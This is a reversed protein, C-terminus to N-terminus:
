GITRGTGPCFRWGSAGSRRLPWKTAPRATLRTWGCKRWARCFSTFVRVASFASIPGHWGTMSRGDSIGVDAARRRRRRRVVRVAFGVRRRPRVLFVSVHAPHGGRGGGGQSGAGGAPAPRSRGGAAACRVVRCQGRRNRPHSGKEQVSRGPRRAAGAGGAGGEAGRRG